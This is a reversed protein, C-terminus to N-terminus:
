RMSAALLQGKFVQTQPWVVHQEAQYRTRPGQTEAEEVVLKRIM